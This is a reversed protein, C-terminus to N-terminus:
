KKPPKPAAALKPGLGIQAWDRSQMAGHILARYRQAQQYVFPSAVFTQYHEEFHGAGCYAAFACAQQLDRHQAGCDLGLDCAVLQWAGIFATPEPMEGSPGVRLQEKLPSQALMGGVSLVAEPDGTELIAVIRALDDPAIRSPAGSEDRPQANLNRQIEATLLRAQARADGMQAAAAFLEDIERPAIKAGHFRLCRSADDVSDYAALRQAANPDGAPLSAVFQRRQKASYSALDENVSNAFLCSELAKALHYREDGTLQTKRAALAEAFAKLDRTSRFEGAVPSVRHAAPTVVPSPLPMGALRPAPSATGLAVMDDAPRRAPRQEAAAKAGNAVAPGAASGPASSDWKAALLAGYAVLSAIGIATLRNM